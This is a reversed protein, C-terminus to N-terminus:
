AAHVLVPKARAVPLKMVFTSGRGPTSTATVDGGMANALSKTIALGLGTGGYKAAVNGNAQEFPKFLRELDAKAIGIGTDTVDFCIYAGSHDLARRARVSVDGAHTFKLANSVLNILCQQLRMPDALVFTADEDVTISNAQALPALLIELDQLAGSVAVPELVVELKGADIRSQDLVQNILRLLHRSAGLVRDADAGVQEWRGNDEAEEKILETYGIIANLPTRLEHSMTGIFESKVRSAELAGAVQSASRLQDAVLKRAVVLALMGVVALFGVILGVYNFFLAQGPRARAWALSGIEAGSADLLPLTIHKAQDATEPMFALAPADLRAGTAALEAPTVLDVAIMYDIPLNPDRPLPGSEREPTIPAASVLMPLGDAAMVTTATMDERRSASLLAGLNLKREVAEVVAATVASERESVEDALWAHRVAGDARVVFVGDALSSYLNNAVWEADWRATTALYADNWIAYDLAVHATAQVRGRWDSEILRASSNAYNRDQERAFGWLMALTMGVAVVVLMLIPAGAAFWARQRASM